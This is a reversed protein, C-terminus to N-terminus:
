LAEKTATEAVQESFFIDSCQSASLRLKRVLIQIEGWKFNTKGSLKNRLSNDTIGMSAALVTKKMGSRTILENLEQLKIM